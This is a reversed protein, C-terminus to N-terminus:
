SRRRRSYSRRCSTTATWHPRGATGNRVLDNLAEAYKTDRESPM